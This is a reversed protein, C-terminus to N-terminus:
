SIAGLGLTFFYGTTSRRSDADGAWDLYMWVFLAIAQSRDHDVTYLIGLGPTSKLYWLICLGIHWHTQLPSGMFGALLGMLFSIDCHTNLLWILSGILRQYLHSDAATSDDFESIKYNVDLPSSIPRADITNFAVLLGQVYRQQSVFIGQSHQWIELGLFFHLLGLDTMDFQAHLKQKTTSIFGQDNGLIILADVYIVIAM